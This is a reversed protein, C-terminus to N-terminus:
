DSPDRAPFREEESVKMLSVLVFEASRLIKNDVTYTRKVVNAAQRLTLGSVPIPAVLPLDIVGGTVHM